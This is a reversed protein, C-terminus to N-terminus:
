RGSAGLSREIFNLVRPMNFKGNDADGDYWNAFVGHQTQLLAQRASEMAEHSRQLNAARVADDSQHKYAYVFDHVALQVPEPENPNMVIQVANKTLVIDNDQAFASQPIGILCVLVTILRVPVSLAYPLKM